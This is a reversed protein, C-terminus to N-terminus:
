IKAPKVEIPKDKPAPHKKKESHLKEILKDTSKNFEGNSYKVKQNKLQEIKAQGGVIKKDKIGSVEALKKKLENQKADSCDLPNTELYKYTEIQKDLESKLDNNLKDYEYLKSRTNEAEKKVWQGSYGIRKAWKKRQLQYKKEESQKYKALLKSRNNLLTVKKECTSSSEPNTQALVDNQKHLVSSGTIVIGAVVIGTVFYKKNIRSSIM